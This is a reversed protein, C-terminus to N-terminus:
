SVRSTEVFGNQTVRIFDGDVINPTFAQFCTPTNPPDAPHNIEVIGGAPVVLSGSTGIKLAGRLVDVTVPGAAMSYGELIVVEDTPGSAVTHGATVAAGAATPSALAAVILGLPAVHWPRRSLRTAPRSSM